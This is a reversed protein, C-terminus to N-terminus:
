LDKKFLTAVRHNQNNKYYILSLSKYSFYVKVLGVKDSRVREIIINQDIKSM